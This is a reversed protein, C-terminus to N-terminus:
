ASMESKDRDGAPPTPREVSVPDSAPFTDKLAEDLTNEMRERKDRASVNQDRKRTPGAFKLKEVVSGKARIRKHLSLM